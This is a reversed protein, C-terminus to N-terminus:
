SGPKRVKDAPGDRSLLSGVRRYMAGSFFADLIQTESIVGLVKGHQDIVSVLHYERPLLGEAISHVTAQPPVAVTRVPLRGVRALEDRKASLTRILVYPAEAEERRASLYVFFALPITTISVLRILSGGVGLLLLVVALGKSLGAARLTAQRLGLRRALCARYVRGGDLPLAPLMNFAALALNAYTFLRWWEGEVVNYGIALWGVFALILNFLPGAVAVGIEAAPDAGLLADIRAVGGLPTLEIRSVSLGWRLAVAVHALEHLVVIGFLTAAETLRGVVAMLAFFLLSLGGLKFHIGRLAM